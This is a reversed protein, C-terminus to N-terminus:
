SYLIRVTLDHSDLAKFTCDHHLVTLAIPTFHYTSFLHSLQSQSRSIVDATPVVRLVTAARDSALFLKPKRDGIFKPGATTTRTRLWWWRERDVQAKQMEELIMM